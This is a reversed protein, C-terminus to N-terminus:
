THLMQQRHLKFGAEIAATIRKCALAEGRREVAEVATRQLTAADKKCEEKAQLGDYISLIPRRGAFHYTVSVLKLFRHSRAQAEQATGDKRKVDAVM